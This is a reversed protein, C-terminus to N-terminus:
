AGGMRAWCEPGIGRAISEPVTLARVCCGCRGEHMVDADPPLDGNLLHKAVYNWARVPVSEATFKSAKTLRVAGTTEDMVGVYTYDATNDPGSLLGLFFPTATGDDKVSRSVRYTRHEGSRKSRVTLVARGGRVFRAVDLASSFPSTM